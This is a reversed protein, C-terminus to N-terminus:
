FPGPKGLRLLSFSIPFIVFLFFFPFSIHIFHTDPCLPFMHVVRTYKINIITVQSHSACSGWMRVIAKCIAFEFCKRRRMRRVERKDKEGPRISNIIVTDINGKKCLGFDVPKKLLRSLQPNLLSYSRREYKVPSLDRAFNADPPGTSVIAWGQGILM